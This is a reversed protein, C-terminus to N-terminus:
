SFMMPLHRQTSPSEIAIGTLAITFFNRPSNSATMAASATAAHAARDRDDDVAALDGRALALHQM